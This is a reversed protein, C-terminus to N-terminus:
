SSQADILSSKVISHARDIKELTRSISKLTKNTLPSERVSAMLINISSVIDTPDISTSNSSKPSDSNNHETQM